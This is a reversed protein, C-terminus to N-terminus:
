KEKNIKNKNTWRNKLQGEFNTKLGNEQRARVQKIGRNKVENKPCDALNGKERIKVM